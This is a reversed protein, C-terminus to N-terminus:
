FNSSSRFADASYLFWYFGGVQVDHVTPSMEVSPPTEGSLSKPKAQENKAGDDVGNYRHSTFTLVAWRSKRSPCNGNPDYEALKDSNCEM